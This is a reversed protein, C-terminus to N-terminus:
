LNNSIPFSSFFLNGSINSSKESKEMEGELNNQEDFKNKLDGAKGQDNGQADHLEEREQYSHQKDLDDSEKTEVFKIVVLHTDNWLSDEVM